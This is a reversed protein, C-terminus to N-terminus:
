RKKNEKKTIKETSKRENKKKNTKRPQKSLDFIHQGNQANAIGLAVAMNRVNRDRRHNEKKMNTSRAFSNCSM